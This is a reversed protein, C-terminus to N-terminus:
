ESASCCNPLTEAKRSLWADMAKRLAMREDDPLSEVLSELLGRRRQDLEEPIRYHVWTGERRNAVLGENFLYRLHRSSKSQSIGLAGEVVCVCLEGREVLLAMIRLRTEDSLAKYLGALEEISGPKLL